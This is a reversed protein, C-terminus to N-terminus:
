PRRRWASWLPLGQEDRLLLVQGNKVVEAALLLSQGGFVIRAGAVEVVDHPELSLDQRELFWAPGLHVTHVQDRVRLSLAYGEAMGPQPIVRELRVVEGSLHLMRSRDFADAYPMGAGWGGSGRWVVDRPAALAAAALLLSALLVGGGLVRRKQM